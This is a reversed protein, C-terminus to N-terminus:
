LLDLQDTPEPLAELQWAVPTGSQSDRTGKCLDYKLPSEAIVYASLNFIGYAHM